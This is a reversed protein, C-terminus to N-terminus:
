GDLTKVKFSDLLTQGDNLAQVTANTNNLTYTWTGGATMSATGYSAGSVLTTSFASPTNDVDTNTLTGTAIPVGHMGNAVGGAEIVSGSTTGSIVAADNAGKIVITVVKQTGDITQVIFSDSLTQGVNLAQVTANDNNLTYTWLGGTSMSATGFTAASILTTSFTNAPNDLDVDTLTGTVTPVGLIANAVGSAETVTGSVAGGIVAADNTGNIIITVVQQTGDVTKVTFSDTRTQGENLAQVVTNTNNLTYTWTGGATITATGYAAASVLTTLFSNAPNDVDTDTLIGTAIPVGPIANVLGGAETVTGSTVGGIVAADNAGKIVITVVKQTGDITQVTFSDSLTQNVNLAQVTANTNNLTYTWLGGTSMSATGYTAANVLTTSFTNVPNDVDTDTLTGTVTPVGPLANAVGGAETVTGTVTGGIVAADNTGNIIITVIQQTGDVTKVTFSDSLTQGVNLAQVAANTNNLTYVWTGTANMTYTGYNNASAGSAVLFTNALNDVDTDTLTGTATPVGPIISSASGGAEIVAGSATGSIVAADNTGKITILVAKQTGDITKVIFSDSLTQNVNLAQVATNTNNLTYTWIGGTSMSATGYTAANVLTTSFTNAPNDVDTDTLTGTATPIGPTANAVGGAETVTGSATGGIVAANNVGTVTITLVSTASAGLQDRVTYNAVVNLVQGQTLYQYAPENANFTYSGNTSLILGPVPANLSYTLVAGAIPDSDNTAVSGTVLTAQGETASNVDANAVPADLIGNVYIKLAEFDLAKINMSSLFNSTPCAGGYQSFDFVQGNLNSASYISLNALNNPDNDINPNNHTLLFNKYAILAARVGADAAQSATLSIVLTDTGTGGEAYSGNSAYVIDDGSGAFLKDIVSVSTSHSGGYLVDNGSGGYLTDGIHTSANGTGAKLVDNGAGGYVRNAGFNGATITDDGLGGFLTQAYTNNGQIVDKGAGGDILRTNSGSNTNNANVDNMSGFFALNSNDLSLTGNDQPATALNNIQENITNTVDLTVTVWNTPSSTAIFTNYYNPDQSVFFVGGLKILAGTESDITYTIASM